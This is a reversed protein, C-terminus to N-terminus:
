SATVGRLFELQLQFMKTIDTACSLRLPKHKAFESFDESAIHRALGQVQDPLVLAHCFFLEQAHQRNLPEQRKVETFVNRVIEELYMGYDSQNMKVIIGSIDVAERLAEKWEMIGRDAAERLTRWFFVEM